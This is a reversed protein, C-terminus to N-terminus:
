KVIANRIAVGPFVKQVESNDVVVTCKMVHDLVNIIRCKNIVLDYDAAMAPLALALSFVM